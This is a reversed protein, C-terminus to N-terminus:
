EAKGTVTMYVTDFVETKIAALLEDVTMASWRRREALHALVKEVKAQTRLLRNEALDLMQRMALLGLDVTPEDVPPAMTTARSQRRDGRLLRWRGIGAVVPDPRDGLDHTM